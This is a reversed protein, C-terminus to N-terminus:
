SLFAPSHQMGYRPTTDTEAASALGDRGESELARREPDSMKAVLALPEQSTSGPGTGNLITIKEADSMPSESYPTLFLSSRTSDKINEVKAISCKVAEANRPPPVSRAKIRGLFVDGPTVSTKSPIAGDEAYIRYYVVFNV